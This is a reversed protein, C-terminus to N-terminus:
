IPALQYNFLVVLPKQIVVFGSLCTQCCVSLVCGALGLHRSLWRMVKDEEYNAVCHSGSSYM